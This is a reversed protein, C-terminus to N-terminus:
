TMLAESEPRHTGHRHKATDRNTVAYCYVCGHPCSDYAGIDRSQACLCGSRNGKTRVDVRRGAIDSLRDTDICRAANLGPSGLQPQSCLTPLIDRRRAITALSLLLQRKEDDDPDSWTFGHKTASREINRRTKLYAHTFSLVMEDTGGALQEAIRSVQDVHFAPPTLSSLLVPDYRWVIARPGHREAAAQIEDVARRWDIVSSELPRPYGTVTYQVMFSTGQDQLRELTPMFPGLRRTWFVFADVSAADLLVRNHKGSYPNRVTCYGADLRRNFWDAYFAPIDTRYSASIIM